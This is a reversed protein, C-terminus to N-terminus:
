AALRTAAAGRRWFKWLDAGRVTYTHAGTDLTLCKLEGRMLAGALPAFWAAELAEVGAAWAGADQEGECHRLADIVVVAGAERAAAERWDAYAGPLPNIEGGALQALGRAYPDDAYVAVAPARLGAPLVGGGWFWLGSVIPRRRAERELNVPLEYFLMQVETLRANWWAAEEGTPLLTRIDRGIAVALPQMAVHPAQPLHVYWRTAVPTHLRLGDDAYVRDFAAAYAHAESDTLELARADFLRVGHLDARLCVPDARLWWGGDASLGDHAATVAAVPPEGIGSWGYLRGLAVEPTGGGATVRARALLRRLQSARPKPPAYGALTEWGPLLGPVILVLEM